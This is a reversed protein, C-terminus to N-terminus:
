SPRGACNPEGAREMLEIVIEMSTPDINGAHGEYPHDFFDVMLMGSTVLTAVAVVAAAQGVLRHRRDAFLCVFGVVIVVGIILMVWVFAPVLPRSELVRGRRGEQRRDSQAFWSGLAANELPGEVRVNQILGHLRDISDEVRDSTRASAMAPWEDDIVEEAYCRLEGQLMDQERPSFLEATRFLETVANAEAEADGRASTYSQFSVLFTFALLVAFATGVVGFAAGAFYAGGFVGDEPGFRRLLFLVLLALANALLLLGIAGLITM